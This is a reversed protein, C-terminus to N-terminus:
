FNVIETLLDQKFKLNYSGSSYTNFREILSTGIGSTVSLTHHIYVAATLVSKMIEM